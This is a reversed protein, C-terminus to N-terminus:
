DNEYKVDKIFEDTKYPNSNVEDLDSVGSIEDNNPSISITTFNTNKYEEDSLNVTCIFNGENTTRLNKVAINTSYVEM